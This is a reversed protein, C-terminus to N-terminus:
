GFLSIEHVPTDVSGALLGFVEARDDRLPNAYHAAGTIRIRRMGTPIHMGGLIGPWM